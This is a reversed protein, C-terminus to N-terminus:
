VIVIDEWPVSEGDDVGPTYREAPGSRWLRMFGYLFCDGVYTFVGAQGTRRLVHCMRTGELAFILDSGQVDRPGIAPFGSETAFMRRNRLKPLMQKTRKTEPGWRRRFVSMDSPPPSNVDFRGSQLAVSEVNRIQEMLQEFAPVNEPSDWDQISSTTPFAFSRPSTGVTQLHVARVKLARRPMDDKPAEESSRMNAAPSTKRSSRWPVLKSLMRRGTTPGPNPRSRPPPELVFQPRFETGHGGSFCGGFRYTPRPPAAWNIVWTPMALGPVCSPEGHTEALVDLGLEELLYESVDTYLDCLGREYDIALRPDSPRRHFLELLAYIKDRPDSADCVRANRLEGLLKQPTMLEDPRPEGFSLVHPMPQLCEICGISSTFAKHLTEWPVVRSGCFALATTAWAVEQLVWVRKFWPLSFFLLLNTEEDPDPSDTICQRRGNADDELVAIAQDTVVNGEGLFILVRSATKYIRHMIRVQASREAVDAQNICIADVWLLREKDALRLRRLALACSEALGLIGTNEPKSNPAHLYIGDAVEPKGWAYSLAEYVPAETGDVRQSDSGHNYSPLVVHQIAGALPDSPMGPHLRLIRTKDARGLSAYEFKDQSHAKQFVPHRPAVVMPRKSWARSSLGLPPEDIETPTNEDTEDTPMNEEAPATEKSKALATPTAYLRTWAVATKIASPENERWKRGIEPDLPDDPNPAGLLGQIRLLVTHIHM